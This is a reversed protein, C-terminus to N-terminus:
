KHLLSTHLDKMKKYQVEESFRNKARLKGSYSMKCRLKDDELLKIIQSIFCEADEPSCIIGTEGNVVSEPLGGANSTVCPLGHAMAEVVSIGHSELLSPQFYLTSNNYLADVDERYGIFKISELGLQKVLDKCEELLNGEGAWIFELQMDRKQRIVKQAVEIWLRPNKYWVVHGLTLVRYITTNEDYNTCEVLPPNKASNYIVHICNAKKKPVWYSLIQLKSYESVTVVAKNANLCLNLFLKQIISLGIIKSKLPYTHFIYMFRVPFLILGIFMGPTGNSVVILNPREKLFLPFTTFIDFILNLPFYRLFIKVGERRGPIIYIKYKYHKILLEIENDLQYKSLAIAVDYNQSSYFKLLYIFYSRTGGSSSFEPILLIKNM